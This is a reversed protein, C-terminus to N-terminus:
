NEERVYYCFLLELDEKDFSIYGLEDLMVLDYREFKLEFSRM